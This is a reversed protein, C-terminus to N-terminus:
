ILLLLCGGFLLGNMITYAKNLFKNRTYTVVLGLALYILIIALNAFVYLVKSSCLLSVIILQLILLITTPFFCNLIVKQGQMPLWLGKDHKEILRELEKRVIQVINQFMFVLLFAFILQKIEDQDFPAFGNLIPTAYIVYGGLALACGIAIFKIDVRVVTLIMKWAIPLHIVTDKKNGKMSNTSKEKAYQTLLETNYNNQASLIKEEYVIDRSYKEYNLIFTTKFYFLFLLFLILISCLSITVHYLLFIASINTLLYFLFLINKDQRSNRNYLKWRLLFLLMLYCYFGVMILIDFKLGNVFGTFVFSVIVIRISKTIYKIRFINNLKKTNNLLFLSAPKVIIVPKKGLIIKGTNYLICIVLVILMYQYNIGSGRILDFLNIYIQYILIGFVIFIGLIELYMNKFLKISERFKNLILLKYIYM